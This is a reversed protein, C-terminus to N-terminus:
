LSELLLPGYEPVMPDVRSAYVGHSGTITHPTKLRRGFLGCASSNELPLKPTFRSALGPVYDMYDALAYDRCDSGM